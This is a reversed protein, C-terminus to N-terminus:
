RASFLRAGAQRRLITSVRHGGPQIEALLELDNRDTDTVYDSLEEALSRRAPVDARSSRSAPALGFLTTLRSM